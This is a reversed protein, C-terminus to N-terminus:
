LTKKFVAQHSQGQPTTLRGNLDGYLPRFAFQSGDSNQFRLEGDRIVGTGHLVGGPRGTNSGMPGFIYVLAATGDPQVNEVILAACLQPTWSADSWMGVFQRYSPPIVVPDIFRVAVTQDCFIREAAPWRCPAGATGPATHPHVAGCNGLAGNATPVPCAAALDGIRDLAAAIGSLAADAAASGAARIGDSGLIDGARRRLSPGDSAGVSPEIGAAKICDFIAKSLRARAEAGGSISARTL